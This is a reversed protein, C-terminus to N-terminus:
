IKCIKVGLDAMKANYMASTIIADCSAYEKVNELNIGGTAVIKANKFYNNRFDLM